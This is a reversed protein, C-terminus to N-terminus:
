SPSLPPVGPLVMSVLHHTCAGQQPPPGVHSQSPPTSYTPIVTFPSGAYGATGWGLHTATPVQWTEQKSPNNVRIYMAEKIIRSIGQSEKDVIYFSDLKIAHGTPNAHYYIPSHVTLHEMYRDGFNKGTEGIYEMTCGPYDCKYRYIVGRKNAISDRDKPPVLLDKITNNGKFYVQLGAKVCINKFSESLGRSYPVVIFIDNTKNFDKHANPNNNHHKLCTSLGM